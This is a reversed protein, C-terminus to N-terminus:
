CLYFTFETTVHPVNQNRPISRTSLMSSSPLPPFPHLSLPLSPPMSQYTFVFAERHCSEWSSFLMNIRVGKIGGERGGGRGGERGGSRPARSQGGGERGGPKVRRSAWPIASLVVALRSLPRRWVSSSSPSPSPSSSSLSSFSSSFSAPSLPFTLLDHIFFLPLSLPRSPPLLLPLSDLHRCAGERM